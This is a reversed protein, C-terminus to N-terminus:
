IKELTDAKIERSGTIDDSIIIYLRYTTIKYERARNGRKRYSFYRLHVGLSAAYRAVCKEAGVMVEVKM